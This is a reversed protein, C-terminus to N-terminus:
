CRSVACQNRGRILSSREAVAENRHTWWVKLSQCARLLSRAILRRVVMSVLRFHSLMKLEALRIDRASRLLNLWTATLSPPLPIGETRGFTKPVM